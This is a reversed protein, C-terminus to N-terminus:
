DWLIGPMEEKLEKTKEKIAKEIRKETNQQNELKMQVSTRKVISQALAEAQKEVMKELTDDNPIFGYVFQMNLASAVQQLLKISITGNRERIEIERVSQPTISLRQGLQRLSMNIAQRVTFVWGQSPPVLNKLPRLKIIKQDLQDRILIKNRM